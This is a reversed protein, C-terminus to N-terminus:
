TYIYMYSCTAAHRMVHMTANRGTGEEDRWKIRALAVMEGSKRAVAKAVRRKKKIM